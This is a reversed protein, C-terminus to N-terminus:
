DPRRPVQSRRFRPSIRRRPFRRFRLRELSEPDHALHEPVPEDSVIDSIAVRGGRKLVRYMETFLQKKDEPRVLNLVCNSVIVDISEDAILPQERRMRAKSSQWVRWTPSRVCRIAGAPAPRAIRSQNESRPDQRPPVRRQSLRTKRRDIKSIQARAGADASQLRRRDSQGARRRDAVHHLLSQRQGIRSRAGNRRSQVYRSPDGCGYDKERIEDPIVKLLAKDYSVPLCLCAEVAKAADGYRELVAAEHNIGQGSSQGNCISEGDM